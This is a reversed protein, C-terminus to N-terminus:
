NVGFFGIVRPPLGVPDDWTFATKTYGGGNDFDFRVVQHRGADTVFCQSYGDACPGVGLTVSQNASQLLPTVSGSEIDVLDISDNVIPPGDFGLRSTLVRKSDVFSVAFGFARQDSAPAAVRWVEQLKPELGVGIIASSGFQAQNVGQWSGSCAIALSGHDPSVDLGSCGSVGDLSLYEEVQETEPDLMVLYSAGSRYNQDYYPVVVYLKDDVIRARDPHAFYSGSQPMASKLDIRALIEHSSPDIVLLDGGADFPQRGPNINSDSRTVIAKQDSIPVYDRLNAAFGTAVSFQRVQPPTTSADIWTIVSSPYRDLVVIETSVSPTSPFALDGSLATSSGANTSGTSLISPSLVYGSRDLLEINASQSGDTAAVVLGTAAGTGSEGPRLVPVDCASLLWLCCVISRKM